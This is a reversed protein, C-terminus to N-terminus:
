AQPSPAACRRELQRRRLFNEGAGTIWISSRETVTVREGEARFRREGAFGLATLATADADFRPKGIRLDRAVCKPDLSIRQGKGASHDRLYELLANESPSLIPNM